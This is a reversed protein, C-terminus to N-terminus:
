GSRRDPHSRRIDAAPRVGGADPLILVSATAGIRLPLDKPPDILHIRVPFRQALRVWDVTPAVVPLLNKGESGDARFIGWGVSQVVGELPENYHGMFRVKARKGPVVGKLDTERFYGTVWFNNADVLAMLPQGKTVYTGTTVVLNTVYGNVPAYVRTYSLNLEALDLDAKAVEIDALAEAYKAQLIQYDELSILQQALLPTRREIELKLLEAVTKAKNLAAEAAGVDQQYDTPDIAFLLDGESVFQNDQVPVDIMPGSVRAAMGVVYAQVQGDRTWPNLLYQKWYVWALVAAVAVASLTILVKVITKLM